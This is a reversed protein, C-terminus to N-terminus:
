KGSFERPSVVPVELIVQVRFRELDHVRLQLRAQCCRLRALVVLELPQPEEEDIRDVRLVARRHEIAGHSQAVPPRLDRRAGLRGLWFGLLRLGLVGFASFSAASGGARLRKDIRM